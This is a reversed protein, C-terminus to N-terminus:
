PGIGGGGRAAQILENVSAFEAILADYIRDLIAGYGAAAESMDISFRELCAALKKQDAWRHAKLIRMDYLAFLRPVHAAGRQFRIPLPSDHPLDMMWVVSVIADSQPVAIDQEDALLRKRIRDDRLDAAATGSGLVVVALHDAVAEHLHRCVSFDHPLPLAPLM